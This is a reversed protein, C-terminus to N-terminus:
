ELGLQSKYEKLTIGKQKAIKSRCDDLTLIGKNIIKMISKKM